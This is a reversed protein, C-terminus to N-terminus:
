RSAEPRICSPIAHHCATNVIKKPLMMTMNGIINFPWAPAFYPTGAGTNNRAENPVAPAFSGAKNRPKTAQPQNPMCVQTPPKAM